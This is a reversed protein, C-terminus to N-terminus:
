RSRDFCKTVVSGDLTRAQALLFDVLSGIRVRVRWLILQNGLALGFRQAAEQRLQGVSLCLDDAQGEETLEAMGLGGLLQGYRLAGDFTSHAESQLFSRLRVSPTVQLRLM